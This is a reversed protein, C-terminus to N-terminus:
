ILKFLENLNLELAVVPLDLDFNKLVQPHIEGLIALNKNNTKAMGSRGKIFTDHNLEEIEYQLNLSSMIVDLIQKIETFNANTHTLVISLHDSEIVGTESNGFNLIKGIEFLKQPYENHKNEKLIKLLSPIIANRLSNYDENLSNSLMIIKNKLLVKNNLDELNNIVYSNTELLKLGILLNAIKDKFRSFKDEEGITSINPLEPKFNEYGYAIAIEEILDVENLIDTRYCPIKVKGNSYKFGMMELYKKIDKLKLGLLKNVNDLDIKMEKIKLDPTISTKNGYKIEMSYVEGNMDIFTTALINSLLNVTNLDTGTCEVFFEKTNSTIKGTEHSNIIPVLSMIKGKSDLFVPYKELNNLLHSYKNNKELIEHAQMKRNSELPQFIIKNKDMLKYHIPPAIKEGPYIGISAKKRNRCFTLHLKEQINIIEIIKENDLKINKVLFFATYPRIKNVNGDVIVKINSKKVKYEKLGKTYQLFSNLARAFGQESLLDPRNPLIEIFVEDKNMDELATGLMTIKDKINDLNTKKKLLKEVVKRNLIVSTM